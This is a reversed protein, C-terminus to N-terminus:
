VEPFIMLVNGRYFPNDVFLCTHCCTAVCFSSVADDRLKHISLNSRGRVVEFRNDLYNLCVPVKRDTLENPVQPGGQQECWTLKKLCDVCCCKLALRPTSNAFKVEVSGCKCAVIAMAGGM